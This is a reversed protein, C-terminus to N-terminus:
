WGAFRHYPTGTVPLRVRFLSGALPLRECEAESMALRATTIFLTSRESAGFACSTVNKAALQVEATIAQRVPDVRVVRYGGFLAVWLQGEADACMGDPMGLEKPFEFVVEGHRLEPGDLNCEYRVIRQAPSDIHYFARGADTWALGNSLTLGELLPRVRLERDVCYLAAHGPEGEEVMSGIWLRGLPDCKGDNLRNGHVSREIDLVRQLPKGPEFLALGDRLALLVRGSETLVVNPVVAELEWSETAGSDARTCFLRQGYIDVWYLRQTAEDWLSAEGLLAPFEHVTEASLPSGLETSLRTREGDGVHVSM